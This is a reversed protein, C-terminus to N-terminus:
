FANRVSRSHVDPMMRLCSSASSVSMSSCSKGMARRQRVTVISDGRSKRVIQRGMLSLRQVRIGLITVRELRYVIAVRMMGVIALLNRM